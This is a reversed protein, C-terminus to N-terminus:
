NYTTNWISQIQVTGSFGYYWIEVFKRGVSYPNPVALLM